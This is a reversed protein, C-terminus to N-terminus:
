CGNVPLSRDSATNSTTGLSYNLAHLPKHHSRTNALTKPSSFLFTTENKNRKLQFMDFLMFERQMKSSKEVMRAERKLMPM